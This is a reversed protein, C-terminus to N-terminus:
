INAFYDSNVRGIKYIASIDLGVEYDYLLEALKPGDILILTVGKNDLTKEVGRPFSSTTMLIGKGSAPISGIFDRVKDIPVTNTYKKAQVCIKELGLPDQNITGDIGGDGSRVCVTEEEAQHSGGYCMKRLLRMCLREFAKDTISRAHDLLEEMVVQRINQYSEEFLTDPDREEGGQNVEPKDIISKEEKKRKLAILYEPFQKLFESDIAQPKQVLVRLGQETIKYFGKATKELLGAHCLHTGAWSARSKIETTRGSPVRLALDEPSLRLKRGIRAEIDELKHIQNDSVEELFPLMLEQHQPVPM